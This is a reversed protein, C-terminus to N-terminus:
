FVEFYPKSLMLYYIFGSLKWPEDHAGVRVYDNVGEGGGGMGAIQNNSRGQIRITLKIKQMTITTTHM